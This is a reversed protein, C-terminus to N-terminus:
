AAASIWRAPDTFVTELAQHAAGRVAADGGLTSASVTVPAWRAALVRAEIEREVPGRLWRYLPAFFGGLVVSPVDLLNLMAAIAVGLAAGASDLARCMGPHGARALEAFEEGGAGSPLDSDAEARIADQGAYQELCGRAGCRCIRGDPHVTMHGIEGAFGRAGRVLQRNVVIGAGIGIEGSLYVFSAPGDPRAAMEGAAALNAENDATLGVGGLRDPIMVDHWGLNPALRVRRDNMLGPVALTAGTVTLGSATAVHVAEAAMRDLETLTETARRPRQDAHRVAHHRVSGSMDVVASALYDVNVELGLGAPGSTGLTLGMSPRGAGNRPTPPVETILSARLMEDVLSSVTARTLGTRGALEARSPPTPALRVQRLLLVLNHERLDGQRLAGPNAM